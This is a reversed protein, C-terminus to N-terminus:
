GRYEVQEPMTRPTAPNRVILRAPKRHEQEVVIFNKNTRMKNLSVSIIDLRQLHQKVDGGGM